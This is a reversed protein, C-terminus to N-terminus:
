PLLEFSVTVRAHLTLEGPAIPVGGARMARVEPRPPSTGSETIAVAAGLKAKAARAYLEAKRRADEIAEARVGDLAKSGDEMEFQIGSMENAGAAIMKDVLAAINGLDRVTVHVQNTAQFGVIANKGDRSRDYVPNISLRRTQVDREAIGASKLAALVARMQAANADSAQRATKGQTTVGANITAREPAVSVSAEGSVTVLKDLAQAPGAALLFACAVIWIPFNKM